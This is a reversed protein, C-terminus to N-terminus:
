KSRNNKLKQLWNDEYNEISVHRGGPAAGTDTPQPQATPQPEARRAAQPEVLPRLPQQSPQPRSQQPASQHMAASPQYAGFVPIQQEEADIVEDRARTAPQEPQGSPRRFGTAIITIQISDGLSPVVATGFIINAGPACVDRVAGVARKVEEMKVDKGEVNIIVKSAGVVSTGLVANNVAKQVAKIARDTGNSCGIGMITDGGNKLITRIDAFDINVRGPNAIIDTTAQVGQRLVDDAYAFAKETTMDKAVNALRENPIIIISDVFKRLNKIGMVAQQMRSEGEFSFPTTVFAITLKGLNNAIEAIVPAAGTGTGGGMGATIFVLDMDQILSSLTDKSEEAAKRGVEADAGAGFGKTIGKGIQVRKHAKSVRLAQRDTNVAMFVDVKVGADIMNDVANSGGGGVGIIAIKVPSTDDLKEQARLQARTDEM